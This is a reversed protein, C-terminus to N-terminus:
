QFRAFTWLMVRASFPLFRSKFPLNIVLGTALLSQGVDLLSTNEPDSLGSGAASSSQGNPDLVTHLLIVTFDHIKGDALGVQIIVGLNAPRVESASDERDVGTHPMESLYELLIAQGMRQRDALYRVLSPQVCECSSKLSVIEADPPLGVPEIPLCFYGAKDALVIGADITRSIAGTRSVHEPTSVKSDSTSTKNSNSITALSSEGCGATALCIVVLCVSWVRKSLTIQQDTSRNIQKMKLGSNRHPTKGPAESPIVRLLKCEAVLWNLISPNLTALDLFINQNEL